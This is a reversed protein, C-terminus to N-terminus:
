QRRLYHKGEAKVHQQGPRAFAVIAETKARNRYDETGIQEHPEPIIPEIKLKQHNGDAEHTLLIHAPLPFPAIYM